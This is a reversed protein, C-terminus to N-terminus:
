GGHRKLYDSLATATLAQVTIDNEAAWRKIRRRLTPDMRVSFMPLAAAQQGTPMALSAVSEAAPEPTPVPDANHTAGSPVSDFGPLFPDQLDDGAPASSAATPPPAVPHVAAPAKRLATKPSPKAM